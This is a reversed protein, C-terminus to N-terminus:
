EREASNEVTDPKDARGIIGAQATVAEIEPEHESGHDRREGQKGYGSQDQAFPNARALGFRNSGVSFSTIPTVRLASRVPKASISCANSRRNPGVSLGSACSPASPKKKKQITATLPM